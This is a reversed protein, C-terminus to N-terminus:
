LDLLEQLKLGKTSQPHKAALREHERIHAEQQNVQIHRKVKPLRRLSKSKSGLIKGVKTINKDINHLSRLSQDTSIKIMADKENADQQM